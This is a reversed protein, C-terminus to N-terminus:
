PFRTGLGNGASVGVNVHLNPTVAYEVGAGVTPLAHLSGPGAFLDNTSQSASMYNAQPGTVPKALTVGSTVYPMWRGMDYGVQVETTSFDFGKAPGRGFVAPSFGSIEHIGVVLRNAFEHNYGIEIDGGVHAKSGSGSVVFVGTGVYLGTWISTPSEWPPALAFTPLSSAMDAAKGASAFSCFAVLAFLSRGLM